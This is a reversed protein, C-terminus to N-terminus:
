SGTGEGEEEAPGGNDLEAAVEAVRGNYGDPGRRGWLDGVKRWDIGAGDLTACDLDKAAGALAQAVARTGGMHSGFLVLVRAAKPVGADIAHHPDVRPHPGGRIVGGKGLWDDLPGWAGGCHGRIAAMATKSLEGRGGALLAGVIMRALDRKRTRFELRVAGREDYM